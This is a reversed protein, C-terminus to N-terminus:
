PARGHRVGGFGGVEQAGGAGEVVGDGLVVGLVEPPVQLGPRQLPGHERGEGFEDGPVPEVALHGVEAAAGPPDGGQQVPEAQGHEAHVQGRRHEGDGAPLVRVQAELLAGDQLQVEGVAREGAGQGPVRGDVRGPVPQRVQEGLEVPDERRAAPEQHGELGTVGREAQLPGEAARDGEVELPAAGLPDLLQQGRGAEGHLGPQYALRVLSPSDAGCAKRVARLGGAVLSGATGEALPAVAM